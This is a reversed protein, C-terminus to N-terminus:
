QWLEKTHESLFDFLVEQGTENLHPDNNFYLQKGESEMARFYRMPNLVEVGKIKSITRIFNHNVKMSSKHGSLQEYNKNYEKTVQSFHPIVVIYIPVSKPVLERLYAISEKAETMAEKMDGKLGISQNVYDPEAQIMMKTRPSYLRTSFPAEDQKLKKRDFDSQMGKMRRSFLGFIEFYPKVSWYCNRAFSLESWNVPPNIDTLDNGVYMQYIIGKPPHDSIRRSAILEMEYPGSGPMSCNIVNIKPHAERFHAVYGNPYATFSDGFVLVNPQNSHINKNLAKYETKFFDIWQYRYAVELVLLTCFLILSIQWTRKWIKKGTKKWDM